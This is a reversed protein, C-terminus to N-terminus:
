SEKPHRKLLVGQRDIRQRLHPSASDYDVIDVAFHSELGIRLARNQDGGKIALDIDFNLSRTTGEALSGFLIVERM